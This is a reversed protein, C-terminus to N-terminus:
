LALFVVPFVWNRHKFFFHGSPLLWRPLPRYGGAAAGSPSGASEGAVSSEAAASVEDGPHRLLQVVQLLRRRPPLGPQAPPGQERGPSLARPREGAGRAE